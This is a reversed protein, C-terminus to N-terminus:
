SVPANTGIREVDAPRRPLGDLLEEWTCWHALGDKWREEASQSLQGGSAEFARQSQHECDIWRLLGGATYQTLSYRREHEAIAVNSHTLVASPILITAGPPFEITIGLEWLILHGGLKYDYRGFASIACWGWPVNLHDTHRYTVTRPGLNITMAAFNNNLFNRHVRADRQILADLTHGYRAHMRPAYLRM